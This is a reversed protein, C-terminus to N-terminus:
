SIWYDWKTQNFYDQIEQATRAKDEFIANSVYWNISRDYDDKRSIEVKWYSVNWTYSTSSILVWDVYCYVTGNDYVYCANHWTNQTVSYAPSSRWAGDNLMAIIWYMGWPYWRARLLWSCYWWNDAWDKIFWMIVWNDYTPASTEYYRINETHTALTQATISSTLQWSHIYCCDVWGYSGFDANWNKSLTHNNGSLDNVTNTSDLPYYAVTNVWPQWGWGGWGTAWYIMNLITM